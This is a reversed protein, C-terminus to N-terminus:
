GGSANDCVRLASQSDTTTRHSGFPLDALEDLSMRSLAPDSWPDAALLNQNAARRGFPGRVVGRLVRRALRRKKLM